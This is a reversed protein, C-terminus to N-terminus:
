DINGAKIACLVQTAEEIEEEAAWLLLETTINRHAHNMDYVDDLEEKLWESAFTSAMALPSESRGGRSSDKESSSDKLLRSVGDPCGNKIAAIIAVARFDDLNLGDTNHGFFYFTAAQTIAYFFALELYIM